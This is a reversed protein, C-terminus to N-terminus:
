EVRTYYDQYTQGDTDTNEWCFENDGFFTLTGSQSITESYHITLTEGDYEYTAPLPIGYANMIVNGDKDFTLELQETSDSWKGVLLSGAGCGSALAMLLLAMLVAVVTKIKKM